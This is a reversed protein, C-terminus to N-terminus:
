AAAQFFSATRGCVTRPRWSPNRSVENIANVIEECGWGLQESLTIWLFGEDLDAEFEAFAKAEAVAYDIGEDMSEQDLFITHPAKCDIFITIEAKPKVRKAM